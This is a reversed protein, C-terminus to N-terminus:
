TVEILDTVAEADAIAQLRAIEAGAGACYAVYTERVYQRLRAKANQAQTMTPDGEEDKPIPYMGEFADLLNQLIGDPITVTFTAM